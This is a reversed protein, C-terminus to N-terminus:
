AHGVTADLFSNFKILKLKPVNAWMSISENTIYSAVIIMLSKIFVNM